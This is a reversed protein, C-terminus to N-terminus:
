PGQPRLAVNFEGFVEEFLAWSSHSLRPPRGPRPERDQALLGDQALHGDRNRIIKTTQQRLAVNFKLESVWLELTTHFDLHGDQALHGDRNRIIKTTQQRLAVNFKLESVWLELTTHFDLHGDQALHGDRNRIIKTTQQRLAVNFKLESM